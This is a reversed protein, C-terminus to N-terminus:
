EEILILDITITDDDTALTLKGPLVLRMWETEMPEIRERGVAIKATGATHQLLALGSSRFEVVAPKRTQAVRLKGFSVRVTKSSGGTRITVSQTGFRAEDYDGLSRFPMRGADQAHAAVTAIALLAITTIRSGHLTKMM